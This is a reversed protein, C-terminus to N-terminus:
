LGGTSGFGKIGRKTEPLRDVYKIDVYAFKPTPILQAMRDGNKITIPHETPNYVIVFLDGTYGSDITGEMVFLNKKFFTSSRPRIQGWTNDGVKIRLGTPLKAFERAHVIEEEKDEFWVELDLGVDGEIHRKLASGARPDTKLVLLETKTNDMISNIKQSFELRILNNFELLVSFLPNENKVSEHILDWLKKISEHLVNDSKDLNIM